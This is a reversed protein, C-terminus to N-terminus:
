TKSFVLNSPQQVAYYPEATIILAFSQLDTTVEVKSRGNDGVLVEGLNM